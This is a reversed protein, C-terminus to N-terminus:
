ILYIRQSMLVKGGKSLQSLEKKHLLQLRNFGLKALKLLSKNHSGQQEYFPIYLIAGLRPLRKPIPRELADQVHKSFTSNCRLPDKAINEHHTKTFVHADDLIVEGHERFYTAECLDLLSQVDNTLSDKFSGTNDKYYSFSNCSVYYGKDRLLRFWLSPSGGNWEDAYVNYIHLLAQNIEKEFYYAIGLRQIADVLKLLNTHEAADLAVRIEKRAEGKLSAIIQDVGDQEEQEDYVLFQDGWLNLHFNALPRVVEDRKADM